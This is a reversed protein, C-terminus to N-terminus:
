TSSAADDRVNMALEKGSNIATRSIDHDNIVSVGFVESSPSLEFIEHPSGIALMQQPDGQVDM